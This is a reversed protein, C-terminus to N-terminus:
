RLAFTALYTVDPACFPLRRQIQVVYSGDEPIPAHWVRAYESAAGKLLQNTRQNYVVVSLARGPFRELTVSLREGAQASVVYSDVRDQALRGGVQKKGDSRLVARVPAPSRIPAELSVTLRTIKFVGNMWQATVQGGAMSLVGDAVLPRDEMACRFQPGLFLSYMQLMAAADRVAVLRSNLGLVRVQLPYRFFQAVQRRNGSALGDILTRYFQRADADALIANGTQAHVPAAHYGLCLCTILATLILRNSRRALHCDM